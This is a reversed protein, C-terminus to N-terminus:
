RGDAPRTFWRSIERSATGPDPPEPSAWAVYGDPRVLLSMVGEPASATTSTGSATRVPLGGLDLHTYADRGTLDLLALRQGRLLEAVRTRGGDTTRLELDPVRHGTLPHSGAPAPYPVTLGNLDEALRRQVEPVPMVEREFWRRFEVGEPSFDFQVAVQRRVSALLEATVPRRETEYTDLLGPVARGRVTAALKWGLNFADQVCFQMGTGSAPYAIRTAEGLLVTRGRRWRAAMRHADTYRGAWTLEHVPLDRGLIDRLCRRVEEPTIPATRAARRRDAHVLTVRTTRPGLPLLLAWGRENDAMHPGDGYPSAFPLDAAMGTFTEDRGEWAIGVQARVTSRAGDAGVLYGATLAGTAGEATRYSVRVGDAGQEIRDATTGHRVEAGQEGAWELLLRETTGQPLYLGGFRSDLHSWRVPRMGGWIHAPAEDGGHLERHAATFREAVGRADLLELVRPLVTGARSSHVTAPRRELVVVSVGALALEAAVALGSPGGGIVVVEADM